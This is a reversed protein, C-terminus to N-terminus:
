QESLALRCLTGQMLRELLDEQITYHAAKWLALFAEQAMTDSLGDEACYLHYIPKSVLSMGLAKSQQELQSLPVCKDPCVLALDIHALVYEIQRPRQPDSQYPEMLAHALARNMAVHINTEM